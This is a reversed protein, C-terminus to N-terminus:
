KNLTLAMQINSREYSTTHGSIKQFGLKHYLNIAPKLITNSELYITSAKLKTAKELIAQGLLWGINKGQVEPSVAMKALEFDYDPDNLKILSCVGVPENNYLAVFIYGGKDLIYKEPNNLAKNDAAEMKFYTSIWEKNLAAFAARYMPQYPLIKVMRSEREKRKEKVRQLLSKQELLFEWEEIAKWLDNRTQASINEIANEVDKYQDTIKETLAIGKKSLKIVNKRADDSARKELVLGKKSM